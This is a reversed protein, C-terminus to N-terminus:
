GNRIVKIEVRRNIAADEESLERQIIPRSRGYGTYGLRKKNIGRKVLYDYVVHARNLSLNYTNTGLDLADGEGTMCCVHGELMIELKPAAALARYLEDLAPESDKTLIHRGGIFHINRIRVTQNPKLKSVDALEKTIVPQQQQQVVLAASSPPPPPVGLDQDPDQGEVKMKHQSVKAPLAQPRKIFIFVRRDEPYGESGNKKSRMVEGAGACVLIDNDGIGNKKLYQRVNRARGEALEINGPTNGLYDAYGYILMKKGRVLKSLSDLQHKAHADLQTINIPFLVRVTDYGAQGAAPLISCCSLLLAPFLNRFMAFAIKPISSYLQQDYLTRLYHVKPKSAKFSVACRIM